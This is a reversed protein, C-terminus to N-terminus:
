SSSGGIVRIEGLGVRADIELQRPGSGFSVTQDWVAGARDTPEGSTSGGPGVVVLAGARVRTHVVVSTRDPIHLTLQGVGLDASVRDPTRDTTAFNSKTLDVTLEGVGLQFSDTGTLTTVDVYREGIDWPRTLGTPAITSFLMFGIGLVSLPALFGARRGTLGAVISALGIVALGGAVAVVLHNGPWRQAQALAALGAGTAIAAGLALLMAAFGITPVLVRPARPETAHFTPPAVVTAGAAAAANGTSLGSADVGAAPSTLNETSGAAGSHASRAGGCGGWTSGLLRQGSDTRTLFWWTLAGLLLLGVIRFGRFEGDGFWPGGGLVSVVTVVLLFISGGDGHTLAREMAIDGEETPMLLWLVLYLGVGLGFFITFFLFAARVVLPDVGLWRAIGTCVGAFWKGETARVVGPRRLADYLGDLGHGHTSQKHRRM